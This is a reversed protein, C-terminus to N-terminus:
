AYKRGEKTINLFYDEFSNDETCRNMLETMKLEEILHGGHIIGVKNCMMELESLIHSSILFTKNYKQALQIVLERIARIGYPDLGNTPEDLIIIDPDNLFARAIGLRQKMGLSYNRVKKDAAETLETIKLVEDIRDVAEKGYIVAMAKLNDRGSMSMYFAPTEIVASITKDEKIVKGGSPKILGMMMKIVTSKGAGNPGVFGYVDGQNLTINVGDVAKHKGFNKSLNETKLVTKNM